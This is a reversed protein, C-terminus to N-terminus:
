VNKKWVKFKRGPNRAEVELRSEPINQWLFEELDTGTPVGEVAGQRLAEDIDSWKPRDDPEPMELTLAGDPAAKYINGGRFWHGRESWSWFKVSYRLPRGSSTLDVDIVQFGNVWREGADGEYLSGAALVRINRDPDERVEYSPFHRHGHLVVDSTASLLRFGEDQDALDSIPHHVLAMRFGAYARDSEDRTILDIQSQTLRLKGSDNDDGSLWASDLGFIHVPFPLGPRQLISHYGLLQHRSQRPDIHSLGLEQTAWEWFACTREVIQNKWQAKGGFPRPGGAMWESLGNADRSALERLGVFASQFLRRNVDHNGPVMFIQSRTLALTGFLRGFWASAAKYEAALGWDAVDGTFCLLDVRRDKRIQEMIEWFNGEDVVRRRAAGRSRIVARRQESM